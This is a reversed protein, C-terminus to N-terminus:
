DRDDLQVGLDAQEVELELVLIRKLRVDVACRDGLHVRQVPKLIDPDM